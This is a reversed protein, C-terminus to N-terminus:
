APFFSLAWRAGCNRTPRRWVEGMGGEGLKATIRYLLIRIVGWGRIHGVSKQAPRRSVPGQGRSALRRPSGGGSVCRYIEKEGPVRRATKAPSSRSRRFVDEGDFAPNPCCPREFRDGDHRM